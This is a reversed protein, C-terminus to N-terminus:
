AAESLFQSYEELANNLALEALFKESQEEKTLYDAFREQIDGKLQDKKTITITESM